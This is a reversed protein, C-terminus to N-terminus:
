NNEKEIKIFVATKDDCNTEVPWNALTQIMENIFAEENDRLEVDVENLMQFANEKELDESFGDTAIVGIRFRITDTEKVVFKHKLDLSLISDTQNSFSNDATLSQLGNEDAFVIWGDGIGGYVVNNDTIKVFKLTTDYQNANGEILAGWRKLVEDPISEYLDTNSLIDTAVSVITQSGEKSYAASGLGDAVAIIVQKEDLYVGFSDQNELKGRGTESFAFVSITYGPIRCKKTETIM